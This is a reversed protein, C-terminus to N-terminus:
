LGAAKKDIELRALEIQIMKRKHWWNLILSLVAVAAGIFALFGSATVGGFVATFGGAWIWFRHWTDHLDIM